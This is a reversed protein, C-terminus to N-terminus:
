LHEVFYELVKYFSYSNELYSFHGGKFVVLESNVINKHLKKAMYMPTDKDNNGWVILTKAKINKLLPQQNYNVANVLVNKLQTSSNKYDPSGFKNLYEKNKVKLKVLLKAFKYRFIKARKKISRKPKIGASDVLVLGLVLNKSAYEIAVRGGFSHGVLVVNSLNNEAIYDKLRSAYGGVTPDQPAPATGFGDLSAFHLTYNKLYDKLYYFSRYDGGWGHLFIINIKGTNEVVFKM